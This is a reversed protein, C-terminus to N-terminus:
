QPTSALLLFVYQRVTKKSLISAGGAGGRRLIRVTSVIHALETHM